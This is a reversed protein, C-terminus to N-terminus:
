FRNFIAADPAESELFLLVLLRQKRSKLPRIILVWVGETIRPSIKMSGRHDLPAEVDQPLGLPTLRRCPPKFRQGWIGRKRKARLLLPQFNLKTAPFAKM